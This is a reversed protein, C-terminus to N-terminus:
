RFVAASGNMRVEDHQRLAEFLDGLTADAPMEMRVVKGGAKGLSIELKALSAVHEKSSTMEADGQEDM